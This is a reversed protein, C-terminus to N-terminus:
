RYTLWCLCNVDEEAIGWQGPFKTSGGNFSYFEGDIPASVGDLYIHTDRSTPLMMCHWVKEKAGAKKATKFAAENSDRHTETEAIRIIDAITGGNDFYNSVRQRWTEGAIPRDVTDLVEDINARVSSRLSRNTVEVGNAYSLLFLDLMEDVIDEEDQKSRIRGDEFHIPLMAKFQELEAFPIPQEEAGDLTNLEDFSLPPM